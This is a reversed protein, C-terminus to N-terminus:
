LKERLKVMLDNRREIWESAAPVEEIYMLAEQMLTLLEDQQQETYGQLSARLTLQEVFLNIHQQHEQMRATIESITMSGLHKQQREEDDM